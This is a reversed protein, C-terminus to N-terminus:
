KRAYLFMKTANYIEIKTLPRNAERKLQYIYKHLSGDFSVLFDQRLDDPILKVEVLIGKCKPCTKSTSKIAVKCYRCPILTEKINYSEKRKLPNNFMNVWDHDYAFDGMRLTNTGTDIVIAYEKGEFLRVARGLCQLWLSLSMTERNFIVAEISPEDYGTTLIGVNQLIADPTKSFWKLIEERHKNSMGGHLVKSNYGADLFAQNVKNCHEININFVITKLGKAKQEYAIVTNEINKSKGYESMLDQEDFDDGHMKIKNFDVDHSLIYTKTPTLFNLKVVDKVSLESVMYNYFSNMPFKRNSAIPTATVGLVSLKKPALPSDMITNYLKEYLNIHCEDIVMFDFAGLWNADEKIRNNLTEVMGAVVQQTDNGEKTSSFVPYADKGTIEKYTEIFQDVIEARYSTFIVRANPNKILYDSIVTVMCYTKGSGTPLNLVVKNHQKLADITNIVSDYQYDRLLRLHQPRNTM